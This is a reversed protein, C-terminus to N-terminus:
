SLAVYTNTPSLGFSTTKGIDIIVHDITQGQSKIDTFAYGPTLPLQHRTVTCRPKSNISFQHVSPELPVENEQLGPLRQIDMYNLRIIM